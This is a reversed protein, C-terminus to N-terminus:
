TTRPAHDGGPLGFKQKVLREAEEYSVPGDFTIGKRRKTTFLV